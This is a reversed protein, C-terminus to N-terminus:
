FFSRPVNKGGDPAGSFGRAVARRASLAQQQFEERNISAQQLDTWPKSPVKLVRSLAGAVIADHYATLVSESVRIVKNAGVLVPELSAIITMNYGVLSSHPHIEFAFDSYQFFRESVRTDETRKLIKRSAGQEAIVQHVTVARQYQSVPVDYTNTAEVVQLPGINELWYHSERCFDVLARKVHHSVLDHPAGPVALQVEDIVQDVNTTTRHSQVNM